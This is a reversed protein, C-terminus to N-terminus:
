NKIKLSEVLNIIPIFEENPLVNKQKNGAFKQHKKWLELFYSKEGVLYLYCALSFQSYLTLDYKGLINPFYKKVWFKKKLYIEEIDMDSVIYSNIFVDKSLFYNAVFSISDETLKQSSYKIDVRSSSYANSNIFFILCFITTITPQM